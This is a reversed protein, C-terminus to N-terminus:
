TGSVMRVFEVTESGLRVKKAKFGADRIARAVASGEYGYWHPAHRRSSAPLGFGLIEEIEAFTITIADSQQRCLWEWLPRYKGSHDRVEVDSSTPQGSPRSLADIASDLASLRENMSQITMELEQRAAILGALEAAGWDTKAHDTM